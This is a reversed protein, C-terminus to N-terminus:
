PQNESTVLDFDPNYTCLQLLVTKHGQSFLFDSDYASDHAYCLSLWFFWFMEM